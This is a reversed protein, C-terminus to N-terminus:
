EKTIKLDPNLSFHKLLVLPETKCNNTIVVGKKATGATVFFEDNTLQGFRILYPTEVTWKDLTGYGQVVVFGYPAPDKITVTKGPYVTLRKACLEPNRHCIWEELYGQANMEGVNGAPKPRMFRHARFDPDVNVPWDIVDLLYDFNGIRDEPTNLWLLNPPVCHDGFTVSQYMANIDVALQPEYTCFSGPAHLVGPPIDWGTDVRLKFARSLELIHNDGRTFNKLAEKVEDKTVDPSFGFFTYAFEGSYNNLQAPYFYMESKGTLKVLRAHEDRHHIHHPLPGANDFLCAYMPWAHYRDWIASGVADAGLEAVVDQFLLREKGAEDIVVYSKGEDGPTGPGNDAYATSTLWREDVGGRELGFAFYDDPHLKLRRGPRCFSRPVWTPALRFVGSGTEMAKLVIDKKGM